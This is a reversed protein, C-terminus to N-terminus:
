AKKQELKLFDPCEYTGHDKGCYLCKFPLRYGKSSDVSAQLTKVKNQQPKQQVKVPALGLYPQAFQTKEANELKTFTDVKAQLFESIEEFTPPVASKGLKTEWERKLGTSM